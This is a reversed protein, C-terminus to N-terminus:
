NAAQIRRAKGGPWGIRVDRATVGEVTLGGPLRTGPRVWVELGGMDLLARGDRVQILRPEDPEFSAPAPAPAAAFTADYLTAPDAIDIGLRGATAHGVRGTAGGEGRVALSVFAPQFGLSALYRGIGEGETSPRGKAPPLFSVSSRDDLYRQRASAWVLGCPGACAKGNRILVKMGTERVKMGIALGAMPAGGDSDIELFRASSGDKALNFRAPDGARIEGSLYITSGDPSLTVTAAAAPAASLAAALVLPALTRVPM